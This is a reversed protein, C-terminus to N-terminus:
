DNPVEQAKALDGWMLLVRYPGSPKDYGKTAQEAERFDEHVSVPYDDANFVVFVGQPDGMEAVAKMMAASTVKTTKPKTM